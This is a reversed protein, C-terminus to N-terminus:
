RSVELSVATADAPRPRPRTPVGLETLLAASDVAVPAGLRDYVLHASRAADTAAATDVGALLRALASRARLVPPAPGDALRDLDRSGSQAAAVDGCVVEVAALPNGAEGSLVMTMAEDLLQLGEGM